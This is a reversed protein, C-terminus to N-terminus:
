SPTWWDHPLGFLGITSLLRSLIFAFHHPGNEYALDEFAVLTWNIDRDPPAFDVPLYNYFNLKKTNQWARLEGFAASLL